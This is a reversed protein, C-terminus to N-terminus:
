KLYKKILIICALLYAWILNIFINVFNFRTEMNIRSCDINPSPEYFSDTFLIDRPFGECFKVQTYFLPIGMNSRVLPNKESPTAQNFFFISISFLLFVAFLIIKLKTPRFFEKWNM